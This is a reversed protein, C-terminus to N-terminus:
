LFKNELDKKSDKKQERAAMRSRNESNKSDKIPKKEWHKEWDVRRKPRIKRKSWRFNLDKMWSKDQYTKESRRDIINKAKKTWPNNFM